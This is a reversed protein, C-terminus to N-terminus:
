LHQNPWSRVSELCPASQWLSCNGLRSSLMRVTKVALQLVDDNPPSCSALDTLGAAFLSCFKQRCFEAPCM